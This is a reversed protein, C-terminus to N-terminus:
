TSSEKEARVLPELEDEFYYHFRGYWRHLEAAPDDDITVAYVRRGELDVKVEEVTATHGTFLLDQADTRRPSPLLRVRSGKSLGSRRPVMEGGTRDRLAGHLREMVEPPIAAARDILARARPDTARAEEKERDTLTMTRLTLLEDIETADFFDGQSEPAIQPHDYLIIPASLMLDATGHEGALVPFTRVNKCSRAADEAWAPPDLLSVFRGGTALLLHVGALSSRLVLDRRAGLADWPTVNEVRISLRHIRRECSLETGSARVVGTIAARERVIRGHHVGGAIVAEEERGGPVHLERAFSSGLEWRHEVERVIGEEFPV